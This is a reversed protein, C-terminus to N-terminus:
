KIEKKLYEIAKDLVEDKGARIGKITPKVPIHPQLGKRQLQSGDAHFVAQGTFRILVGGPVYFNTVDGNAGNTPSGIFKTGNAAEFFLGSHEAQSIAREDILMVTKGKYRWKETKPLKQKFFYNSYTYESQSASVIVGRFTAGVVDKKETLRPAISWATGQPYGRMDMIIAKTDKFADFMKDVQKTTLRNLDVYGIDKSLLKYIDGDRHYRMATRFTTKRPLKVEREKGTEDKVVLTLTTKDGGRLIYSMVNSMRAQPTSATVYKGYRKIRTKVDEGDVKLIVDGVKLNTEKLLDKFIRIVVPRDEIMRITIPPKAIGIYNWYIKGYAGVHSDHLHSLMESITLVYETENAAKEFKPIFERAM